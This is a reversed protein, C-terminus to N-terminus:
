IISLSGLPNSILDPQTEPQWVLFVRNFWSIFVFHIICDIFMFFINPTSFIINNM